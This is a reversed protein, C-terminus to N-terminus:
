EQRYPISRDLEGVHRTFLVDRQCLNYVHRRNTFVVMGIVNITMGGSCYWPLKPPTPSDNTTTKIMSTTTTTGDHPVTSTTADVICENMSHPTEYQSASAEVATSTGIIDKTRGM